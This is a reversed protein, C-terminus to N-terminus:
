QKDVAFSVNIQLSMGKVWAMAGWRGFIARGNVKDLPLHGTDVQVQLDQQQPPLWTSVITLTNTEGGEGM